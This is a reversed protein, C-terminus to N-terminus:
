PVEPMPPHRHDVRGGAFENVDGAGPVSLLRGITKVVEIEPNIVMDIHPAQDRFVAHYAYFDASRIRALKKTGPSLIQTTLGADPNM